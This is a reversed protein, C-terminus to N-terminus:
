SDNKPFVREIATGRFAKATCLQQQMNKDAGFVTMWVSWFGTAKALKLVSSRLEQSDNAKLEELSESALSWTERRKKWRPDSGRLVQEQTLGKGPRKFLGVM